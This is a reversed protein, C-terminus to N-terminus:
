KISFLTRFFIGFVLATFILIKLFEGEFGFLRAIYYTLFSYVFFSIIINIINIINIIHITNM